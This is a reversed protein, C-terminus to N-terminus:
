MEEVADRIHTLCAIAGSRDVDIAVVDIRWATDASTRHTDLYAYALAILREQKRRNVSEAAADPSSRRTRVEVFVLTAGDRMILDIEGGACRWKQDVVTMGRRTLDAVAAQEGFNGLKTRIHPM